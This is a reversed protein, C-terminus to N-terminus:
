RLNRAFDWYAKANFLVMLVLILTLIFPETGDWGVRSWIYHETFETWEVAEGAMERLWIELDTLPCRWGVVMIMIGYVAVPFHLWILRPWRYYLIGGAIVFAVFGFHILAAVNAMLLYATSM